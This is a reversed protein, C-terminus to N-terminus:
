DQIPIPDIIKQRYWKTNTSTTLLKFNILRFNKEDPLEYRLILRLCLYVSIYFRDSQTGKRNPKNSIQMGWHVLAIFNAQSRFVVSEASFVLRVPFSVIGRLVQFVSKFYAM